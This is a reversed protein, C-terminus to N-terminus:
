ASTLVAQATRTIPPLGPARFRESFICICRTHGGPKPLVKSAVSISVSLASIKALFASRRIKKKKKKKLKPLNTSAHVHQRSALTARKRHHEKVLPVDMKKVITKHDGPPIVLTNDFLSVMVISFNSSRSVNQLINIFIKHIVLLKKMLYFLM